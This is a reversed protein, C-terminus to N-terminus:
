TPELFHSSIDKREQVFVHFIYVVHAYWYPHIQMDEHSLLMIDAHSLPNITDQERQLDYTMYNVSLMSHFFTCNDKISICLQDEDSFDHEDGEYAM